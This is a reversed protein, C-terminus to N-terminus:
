QEMKAREVAEAVFKDVYQPALTFVLAGAMVVLLTGGIIMWAPRRYEEGKKFAFWVPGIGPLLMTLLGERLSSAFAFPVIGLYGVFILM